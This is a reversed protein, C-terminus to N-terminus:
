DETLQGNVMKLLDLCQRSVVWLEGRVLQTNAAASHLLCRVGALLADITQLPAQEKLADVRDAITTFRARVVSISPLTTRPTSYFAERLSFMVSNIDSTKM